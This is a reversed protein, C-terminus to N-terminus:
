RVVAIPCTAHRIAAVTVSGLHLGLFGGAGRAGVVLLAAGTSAQVLAKAAHSRLVQRRVSVDPYRETWGAVAESLLRHQASELDEPHPFMARIGPEDGLLTWARVATLPLRLHAAETFALALAAQAHDGVDVGVVVGPGGPAPAAPVMEPVLVVPCATGHAVVHSATSGLLLEAFEGRGRRGLVCLEADAAHKLLTAAPAGEVIREEVDVDPAIEAATRHAAALEDAAISRGGAVDWGTWGPYNETMYAPWTNVRLLVLRRGRCAAEDAAWAVARYSATSGDVGVLIPGATMLAEEEAEPPVRGVAPVSSAVPGHRSIPGVTV